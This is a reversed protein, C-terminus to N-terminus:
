PACETAYQRCGEVFEATSKPMPVRAGSLYQVLGCFEAILDLGRQYRRRAKGEAAESAPDSFEILAETAAVFTPWVTFIVEDRRMTETEIKAAKVLELVLPEVGKFAEFPRLAELLTDAILDIDRMTQAIKIYRSDYYDKVSMVFAKLPEGWLEDIGEQGSYHRVTKGLELAETFYEECQKLLENDSCVRGGKAQVEVVKTFIDTARNYLAGALMAGNVRKKAPNTEAKYAARALEVKESPTNIGAETHHFLRRSLHAILRRKEELNEEPPAYYRIWYGEYFVCEKGDIVRRTGNATDGSIEAM